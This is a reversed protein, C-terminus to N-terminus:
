GFSNMSGSSHYIMILCARYPELDQPCHSCVAHVFVADDPFLLLAEHAAYQDLIGRLFFPFLDESVRLPQLMAAPIWLDSPTPDLSFSSAAKSGVGIHAFHVNKSGNIANGAEVRAELAAFERGTLTFKVIPISAGSVTTQAAGGM